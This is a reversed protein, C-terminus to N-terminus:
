GNFRELLSAVRASELLSQGGVHLFLRALGSQFRCCTEPLVV